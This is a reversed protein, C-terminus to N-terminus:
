SKSLYMGELLQKGIETKFVRDRISEVAERGMEDEFINVLFDAEVIIQFDIGDVKSYTHHNGIIYCVRHIIDEPINLRKLIDKAIPPGEQEQYPGASSNFKREAEKIGIDHLVATFGIIQSTNEDLGQEAVIMQTFSLVKLAHNIRRLDTQFYHVMETMVKALM